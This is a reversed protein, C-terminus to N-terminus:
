QFSGAMSIRANSLYNREVPQMNDEVSKLMYPSYIMLFAKSSHSPPMIVMFTLLNTFQSICGIRCEKHRRLFFDTFENESNFLIIFFGPQLNTLGFYLDSMSLYLWTIRVPSSIVSKSTTWSSLQEHYRPEINLSSPSRFVFYSCYCLYCVWSHILESWYSAGGIPVFHSKYM